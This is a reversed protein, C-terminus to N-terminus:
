AWSVTTGTRGWMAFPRDPIWRSYDDEGRLKELLEPFDLDITIGSYEAHIDAHCDECLAMLNDVSLKSGGKYIPTIDHVISSPVKKREQFCLECLPNLNKYSKSLKEM